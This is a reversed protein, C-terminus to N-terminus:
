LLLPLEVLQAQDDCHKHPLEVLTTSEIKFLELLANVCGRLAGCDAAGALTVQSRQLATTAGEHATRM